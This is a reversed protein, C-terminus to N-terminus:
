SNKGKKSWALPVLESRDKLIKFIPSKCIKVDSSIISNLYGITFPKVLSNSVYQFNDVIWGELEAKSFSVILNAEILQKFADALQNGNSNFLLKNKPLVNDKLLSYLKKQQEPPFYKKLIKFVQDTIGEVFVPYRKIKIPDQEGSVEPSEGSKTSPLDLQLIENIFVALSEERERVSDCLDEVFEWTVIIDAKGPELINAYFIKGFEIILLFNDAFPESGMPYHDHYNEWFQNFRELIKNVQKLFESRRQSDSSILDVVALDKLIRLHSSFQFSFYPNQHRIDYGRGYVPGKKSFIRKDRIENVRFNFNQIFSLYEKFHEM